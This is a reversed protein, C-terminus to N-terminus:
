ELVKIAQAPCLRAAKIVAPRQPEDPTADFEVGGDDDVAFVDPAVFECQGHGQCVDLDVDIRM